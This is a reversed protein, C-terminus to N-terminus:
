RRKGTLKRTECRRAAEFREKPQAMVMGLTIECDRLERRETPTLNWLSALYVRRAEVESMKMIVGGHRPMVAVGRAGGDRLGAAYNRASGEDDFVQHLGMSSSVEYKQALPAEEACVSVSWGYAVCAAKAEDYVSWAKRLSDTYASEAEAHDRTAIELLLKTRQTEDMHQREAGAAANIREIIQSALPSGDRAAQAIARHTDCTPAPPKTRDADCTPAPPKTRDAAQNM